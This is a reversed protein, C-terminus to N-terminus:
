KFLRRRRKVLEFLDPHAFLWLIEFIYIPLAIYPRLERAEASGGNAVLVFVLLVYIGFSLIFLSLYTYTKIAQLTIEAPDRRRRKIKRLYKAKNNRKIKRLFKSSGDVGTKLPTGLKMLLAVILSAVVAIAVDHIIGPDSIATVLSEM